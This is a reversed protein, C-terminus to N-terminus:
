PTRWLTVSGVGALPVLLDRDSTLVTSNVM